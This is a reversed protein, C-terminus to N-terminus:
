ASGAMARLWSVVDDRLEPPGVVVAHDLLGLVWERFNPVDRVPVTLTVSGDGASWDATASPGADAVAKTALVGDVRLVASVPPEDGTDGYLWPQQSMAEGPSPLAAGSRREFSGSAGVEVSALRDVRFTRDAARLRDHGFVYWRGERFFLAAPEITRREGSREFTVPARSRIAAHLVPLLPHEDLDALASASVETSRGLTLKQLGEAADGAAGVPVAAVALHLALQEEETLGLDPLYYEDPPIRYRGDEEVLPIDEDRLLKKDREFARRRAEDGEPYGPIGAVIEAYTAGSGRGEGAALLFTVLNALREFRDEPV